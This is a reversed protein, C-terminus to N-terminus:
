GGFYAAVLSVDDHWGTARVSTVWTDPRYVFGAVAYTYCDVSLKMRHQAAEGYLHTSDEAARRTQFKRHIAIFRGSLCGGERLPSSYERLARM